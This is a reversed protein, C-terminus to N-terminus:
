WDGTEMPLWGCVGRPWDIRSDEGKAISWGGWDGTELDELGTLENEYQANHLNM